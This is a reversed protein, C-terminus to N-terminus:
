KNNKLEEFAKECVKHLRAIEDALTNYYAPNGAAQEIAFIHSVEEKIGMYSLQPKLSHAAIKVGTYDKEVLAKDIAEMLKGANELFMQIYKAMKDPNGGTFSRLFNRDTVMDPLVIAPRAPAAASGDATTVPQAFITRVPAEQAAQPQTPAIVEADAEKDQHERWLEGTKDVLSKDAVLHSIKGILDEIKFPKSLYEDMGAEMYQAVDEQLVNATMAIIKVQSAPPQLTNRINHTATVGDMVPMQVDMLVIDYAN